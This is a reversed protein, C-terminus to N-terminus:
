NAKWLKWIPAVLCVLAILGWVIPLILNYILAVPTGTINEDSATTICYGVFTPALAVAIIGSLLISVTIIIQNTGM